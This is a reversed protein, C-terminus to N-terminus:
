QNAAQRMQLVIDLITDLKESQKAMQKEQKDLKELTSVNQNEIVEIRRKLESSEEGGSLSSVVPKLLAEWRDMKKEDSERLFEIIDADGERMEMLKETLARKSSNPVTREEIEEDYDSGNREQMGDQNSGARKKKKEVLTKMMNERAIELRSKEQMAALAEQDRVEKEAGKEKELDDIAAIWLDLAIEWEGYTRAVGSKVKDAEIEGRRKKEWREMYGKVNVDLKGSTVVWFKVRMLDFFKMKGTRYLEFHEHCLKVLKAKNDSNSIEM